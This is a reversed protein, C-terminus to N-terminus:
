KFFSICINSLFYSHSLPWISYRVIENQMFFDPIFNIPQCYLFLSSGQSIARITAERMALRLRVYLRCFTQLDPPSDSSCLRKISCIKNRFRRFYLPQPSEGGGKERPEVPGQVSIASNLTRINSM